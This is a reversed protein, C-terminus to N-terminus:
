TDQSEGDHVRTWCSWFLEASTLFQKGDNSQLTAQWELTSEDIVPDVSTLTAVIPNTPGVQRFQQGLLEELRHKYVM